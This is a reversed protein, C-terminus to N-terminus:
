FSRSFTPDIGLLHRVFPGQLRPETKEISNARKSTVYTQKHAHIHLYLVVSYIITSTYQIARLANVGGNQVRGIGIRKKSSFKHFEISIGSLKKGLPGFLLKGANTWIITQRRGPSVGKDSGIITLWQRMSADSSRLSNFAQLDWCQDPHKLISSILNTAFWPLIFQSLSTM